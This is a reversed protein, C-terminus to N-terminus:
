RSIDHNALPGNKIVAEGRRYDEAMGTSTYFSRGGFYWYLATGRALPTLPENDQVKVPYVKVFKDFKNTLNNKKFYELQKLFRERKEEDSSDNWGDFVFLGIEQFDKLHQFNFIFTLM